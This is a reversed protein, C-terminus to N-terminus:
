AHAVKRYITIMTDGYKREKDLVLTRLDSALTDKRSHEVVVLGTQSLIDHSDLSILSKKAMDQYYPPDLFILDFREVARALRPMVSLANTKIIDYAGDPIDLSSLNSKITHACRFNNEVFTAHAAGRSVSEIGFAGSGAFLDLVRRGSIDALINFVAERVRDQTPRIDVGKPMDILRSKFQGGIIRM